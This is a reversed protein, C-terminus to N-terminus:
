ASMLPKRILLNLPAGSSSSGPSSMSRSSVPRGTYPTSGQSSPSQISRSSERASSLRGASKAAACGPADPLRRTATTRYGLIELKVSTSARAASGPTTTRNTAEAPSTASILSASRTMRGPDRAM